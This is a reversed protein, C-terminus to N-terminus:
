VDPEEEPKPDPKTATDWAPEEGKAAAAFVEFPSPMDNLTLSHQDKQGLYQKGLWILM